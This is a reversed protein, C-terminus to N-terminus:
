SLFRYSLPCVCAGQHIDGELFAVGLGVGAATHSLASFSILKSEILNALDICIFCPYLIFAVLIPHSVELAQPSEWPQRDLLEGSEATLTSSINRAFLSCSSPSTVELSTGRCRCTGGVGVLWPWVKDPWTLAGLIAPDAM